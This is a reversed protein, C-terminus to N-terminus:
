EGKKKKRKFGNEIKTFGGGADGGVDGNVSLRQTGGDGATEPFVNRLTAFFGLIHNSWDDGGEFSQIELKDTNIMKKIIILDILTVTLIIKRSKVLGHITNQGGTGLGHKGKGIGGVGFFRTVPILPITQHFGSSTM